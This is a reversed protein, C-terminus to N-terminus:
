GVRGGEGWGSGEGGGREEVVVGSSSQAVKVQFSRGGGLGKVQFSRGGGLCDGGRARGLVGGVQLAQAVKMQEPSLNRLLEEEEAGM